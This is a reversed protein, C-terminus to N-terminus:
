NRSNLFHFYKASIVDLGSAEGCNECKVTDPLKIWQAKDATREFYHEGRKAWTMTDQGCSECHYPVEFSEVVTKLPMFGELINMQHVAVSPCNKLVIIDQEISKIWLVWSRLGVSNLLNLGKLDITIRGQSAPLQIGSFDAHEDVEGFFQVLAGDQDNESVKYEFSM